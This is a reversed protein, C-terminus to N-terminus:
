INIANPDLFHAFGICYITFQHKELRTKKKAKIQAFKRVILCGCM